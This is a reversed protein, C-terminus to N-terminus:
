LVELTVNVSHQLATGAPSTATGTVTLTYSQANVDEPATNIRDGCGAVMLLCSSVFPVVLLSRYKGLPKQWSRWTCGIVPLLLVALVGNGPFVPMDLAATPTQITLTFSTAAGGPPLSSPSLSAAAGVPMGQVALLIPSTLATGTTTVSFSFTAASGAPVIQTTTGTAAM